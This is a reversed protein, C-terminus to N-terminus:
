VLWSAIKALEVFQDDLSAGGVL